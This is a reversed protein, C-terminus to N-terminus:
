ALSERVGRLYGAAYAARGPRRSRLRVARGRGHRDYGHRKLAAFIPAFQMEGQGPARRNPDNVQVHGILGTPLWADILEPM